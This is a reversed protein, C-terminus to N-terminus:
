QVPAQTIGGHLHRNCVSGGTILTKGDSRDKTMGQYLVEKLLNLPQQQRLPQIRSTSCAKTDYTAKDMLFTRGRLCTPIKGLTQKWPPLVPSTFTTLPHVRTLQYQVQFRGAKQSCTGIDGPHSPTYPKHPTSQTNVCPTITTAAKTFRKSQLQLPKWGGRKSPQPWTPNM